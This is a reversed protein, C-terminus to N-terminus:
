KNPCFEWGLHTLFNLWDQSTYAAKIKKKCPDVELLDIGKYKVTSGKPVQTLNLPNSDNPGPGFVIKDQGTTTATYEWRYAINHCDHFMYVTKFSVDTIAQPGDGSGQLLNERGKFFVDSAGQNFTEDYDTFDEVFTANVLEARTAFGAAKPNDRNVSSWKLLIDKANKTSICCKKPPPHGYSGGGPMAMAMAPLFAAFISLKM